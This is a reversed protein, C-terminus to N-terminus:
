VGNLSFVSTQPKWTEVGASVPQGSTWRGSRLGSHLWWLVFSWFQLCIVTFFLAFFFVLFERGWPSPHRDQRCHASFFSSREQQDGALLLRGNTEPNWIWYSRTFSPFLSTPTSSCDYQSLTPLFLVSIFSHSSRLILHAIFKFYKLPPSAIVCDLGDGVFEPSFKKLYVAWYLKLGVLKRRPQFRSGDKSWFSFLRRHEMRLRRWFSLSTKKGGNTQCIFRCLKQTLFVHNKKFM